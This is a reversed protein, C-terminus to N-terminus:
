GYARTCVFNGKGDILQELHGKENCSLRSALGCRANESVLFPMLESQHHYRCRYHRDSRVCVCQM